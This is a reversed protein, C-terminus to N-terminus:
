ATLARPPGRTLTRDGVFRLRRAAGRGSPRVFVPPRRPSAGRPPLRREAIAFAVEVLLRALVYAALAFPAQLLLGALFVPNAALLWSVHGHGIVYEVHEQLAFALPPLCAFPWRPHQRTPPANTAFSCVAWLLAAGGAAAVLPLLGHSSNSQSFLEVTEYSQPAFRDLLSTAGETGAILLPLMVLWLRAAMM